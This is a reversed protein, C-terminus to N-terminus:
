SDVQRIAVKEANMRVSLCVSMRVHSSRSPYQDQDLIYTKHPRFRKRRGIVYKGVFRTYKVLVPKPFYTKLISIVYSMFEKSSM